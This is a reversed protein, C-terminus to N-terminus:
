GYVGQMISAEKKEEGPESDPTWMCSPNKNSCTMQQMVQLLNAFVLTQGDRQVEFSECGTGNTEEKCAQVDQLFQTILRDGRDSGGEGEFSKRFDSCVHILFTFWITEESSQFQSRSHPRHTPIAQIM